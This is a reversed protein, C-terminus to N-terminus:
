KKEFEEIVKTKSKSYDRFYAKDSVKVYIINLSKGDVNYIVSFQRTGVNYKLTDKNVTWNGYSM